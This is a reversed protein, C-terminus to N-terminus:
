ESPAVAALHVGPNLAEILGAADSNPFIKLSLLLANLSSFQAGGKIAAISVAERLVPQETGDASRFLTVRVDIDGPFAPPQASMTRGSLLVLTIPVALAPRFWPFAKCLSRNANRPPQIKVASLGRERDPCEARQFRLRERAM